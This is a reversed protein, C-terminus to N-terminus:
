LLLFIVSSQLRSPLHETVSDCKWVKKLHLRMDNCLSAEFWCEGAEYIHAINIGNGGVRYRGELGEWAELRAVSGRLNMAEKLSLNEVSGFIWLYESICPWKFLILHPHVFVCQYNLNSGAGGFRLMQCHTISGLCWSVSRTEKSLRVYTYGPFVCVSIGDSSLPPFISSHSLTEM